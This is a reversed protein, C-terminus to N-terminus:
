MEKASLIPRVTIAKSYNAVSKSLETFYHLIVAM